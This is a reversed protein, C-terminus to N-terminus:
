PVDAVRVPTTSSTRTGDGLQGSDNAGWCYAQADTTFGCTHRGGPSLLLLSLGGSVQVPTRSCPSGSCQETTTAGLQGSANRGWCFAAGPSGIGCTHFSGAGVTSFGGPVVLPSTSCPFGACSQSAAVGLQGEANLGWCHVTGASTLGCTHSEGTTITVFSFPTAVRTPGTRRTTSSDGLQGYTNDGWCYADGSQTLGCTHRGGATLAALSLGGKVRVPSTRPTTSSDGLQGSSNDGWCHATGDQQRACTHAVGATMAAFTLVGAVATPATVASSDGTGLQGQTNAGWCYAAGSQVLACTHNEFAGMLVFALSNQVAGPLPHPMADPTGIGLQASANAGWCYALGTPRLACTHNAGTTLAVYTPPPAPSTTELCGALALLSAGLSGWRALRLPPPM